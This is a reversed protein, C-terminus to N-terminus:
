RDKIKDIQELRVLLKAVSDSFNMQCGFSEIFLKKTNEVKPALALSTGQKSENIIKEMSKNQMAEQSPQKCLYM